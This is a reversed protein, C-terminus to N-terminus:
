ATQEMSKLRNLIAEVRTRVQEHKDILNARETSQHDQQTRLLRNEEKLHECTRILENIRSELRQLEHEMVQQAKDKEM